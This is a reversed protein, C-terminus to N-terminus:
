TAILEAPIPVDRQHVPDWCISAAPQCIDVLVADGKFFVFQGRHSYIARGYQRAFRQAATVVGPWYFTYDDGILIGGDALLDWYLALDISVDLADHNADLYILDPQLGLQKFLRAAITSTQPVPVIRDAVGAHMVNALFQDYVRPLSHRLRLWNGNEANNLMHKVGSLWTDVCVIRGPLELATMHQAMAIASSGRWTGIEAVLGPSARSIADFLISQPTVWGQLDSPIDRFPFGAFPSGGLIEILRDIPATDPERHM